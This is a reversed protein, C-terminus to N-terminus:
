YADELGQQYAHQLAKEITRVDWPLVPHEQRKSLMVSGAKEKDTTVYSVNAWYGVIFIEDRMDESEYM